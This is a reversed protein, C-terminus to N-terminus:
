DTLAPSRGALDNSLEQVTALLHNQLLEVARMRTSLKELQMRRSRDVERLERIQRQLFIIQQSAAANFAAKEAATGIPLFVYTPTACFVSLPAYHIAGLDNLLSSFQDLENCETVIIPRYTEITKVAGSIVDPEMGETDIKILSVREGFKEADLRIVRVMGESSQSVRTMGLNKGPAEVLTAKGSKRGVAVPRVTVRDAVANLEISKNLHELSDPNPEFSIVKCGAILSFFITHNGINAGVDLVLDGPSVLPALANLLDPEYFDSSTKIVNAIHDDAPLSLRVATGQHSFSFETPTTNM